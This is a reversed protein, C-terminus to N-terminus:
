RIPPPIFIEPTKKTPPIYADTAPKLCVIPRDGVAQHVEIREGNHEFIVLYGEILQQSYSTAPDPCGISGDRWTVPEASVLELESEAIVMEQALTTRALVAAEILKDPSDTTMEDQMTTETDGDATTESGSTILSDSGQGCAGMFMAAAILASIRRMSWMWIKPLGGCGSRLVDSVRGSTGM